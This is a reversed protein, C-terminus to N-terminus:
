IANIMGEKGSFCENNRVKGKGIRNKRIFGVTKVIKQSIREFLSMKDM